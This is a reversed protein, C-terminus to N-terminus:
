FLKAFMPRHGSRSAIVRRARHGHLVSFGRRTHARDARGTRQLQYQGCRPLGDQAQFGVAPCPLAPQDRRSRDPHASLLRCADGRPIESRPVKRKDIGFLAQEEATMARRRREAVDAVLLMYPSEVDLEFWESLHPSTAAQLYPTAKARVGHGIAEKAGEPIL